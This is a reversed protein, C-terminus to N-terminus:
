STSIGLSPYIPGTVPPVGWLFDAYSAQVQDIVEGEGDRVSIPIVTAMPVQEWQAIQRQIGLDYTVHGSGVLVVLIASSDPHKELARLANNGFTADWTCQAAFMGRWPEETMSAHFDENEDFYSKFLAFHEENDVDVDPPMQAKEEETYKGESWATLFEQKTYPFMELGLM